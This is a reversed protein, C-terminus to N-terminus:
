KKRLLIDQSNRNDNGFAVLEEKFIIHLAHLLGEEEETLSEPTKQNHWKDIIQGLRGSFSECFNIFELENSMDIFM